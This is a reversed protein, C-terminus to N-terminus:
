FIFKLWNRAPFLKSMFAAVNKMVKKRNYIDLPDLFMIKGDIYVGGIYVNNDTIVFGKVLNKKLEYIIKFNPPIHNTNYCSKTANELTDYVARVSSWSTISKMEILKWGIDDHKVIYFKDM